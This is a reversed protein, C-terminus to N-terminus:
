EDNDHNKEEIYSLNEFKRSLNENKLEIRAFRAMVKAFKANYKAERQVQKLSAVYAEITINGNRFEQRMSEGLMKREIIEDHVKAVKQLTFDDLDGHKSIEYKFMRIRIETLENELGDNIVDFVSGARNEGNEYVNVYWRFETHSVSDNGKFIITHFGM